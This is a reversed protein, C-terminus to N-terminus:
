TIQHVSADIKTGIKITLVMCFLGLLILRILHVTSKNVAIICGIWNCYSSIAVLNILFFSNSMSSTLIAGFKLSNTILILNRSSCNIICELNCNPRSVINWTVPFVISSNKAYELVLALCPSEFINSLSVSIKFANEQSSNEKGESSIMAKKNINFKSHKTLTWIFPVM